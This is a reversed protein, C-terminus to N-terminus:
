FKKNLATKMIKKHFTTNKDRRTIQRYKNTKIM